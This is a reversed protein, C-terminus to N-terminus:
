EVTSNNVYDSREDVSMRRGGQILKRYGCKRLHRCIAVVDNREWKQFIVGAMNCRPCITKIKMEGGKTKLFGPGAPEQWQKKVMKGFRCSRKGTKLQTM